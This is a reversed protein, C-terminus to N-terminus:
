DLADVGELVSTSVAAAVTDLEVTSDAATWVEVTRRNSGCGNCRPVLVNMGELM